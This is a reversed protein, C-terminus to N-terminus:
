CGPCILIPFSLGHSLLTCKVHPTFFALMAAKTMNIEKDDCLIVNQSDLSEFLLLIVFCFLLFLLRIICRKIVSDIM